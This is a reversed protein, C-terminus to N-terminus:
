VQGQQLCDREGLAHKLWEFMHGTQNSVDDPWGTGAIAIGHDLLPLTRSKVRFFGPISLSFITRGM